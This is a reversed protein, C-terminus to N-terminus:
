IEPLVYTADGLNCASCGLQFFSSVDSSSTPSPEGHMQLCQSGKLPLLDSPM